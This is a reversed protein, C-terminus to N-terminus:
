PLIATIKYPHEMANQHSFILKIKNSNWQFTNKFNLYILM